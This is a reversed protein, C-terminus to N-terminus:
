TSALPTALVAGRDLPAAGLRSAFAALMGRGMADLGFREVFRTRGARGIEAQRAPDALLGRLARELADADAGPAVIGADGVVEVLAPTPSVVTAIGRAMSEAAVLGFSEYRSAAVVIAARMWQAELEADPLRGPTAIRAAVDPSSTRIRALQDAIGADDLPGVLTLTAEPHSPALRLFADLLRDSGKRPHLPGIALIRGPEGAGAPRVGPDPVGHPVVHITRDGLGCEHRMAGAHAESHTILNPMRRATYRDLRRVFRDHHRAPPTGTAFGDWHPTHLRLWGEPVSRAVAWGIGELNPVEVALFRRGAAVRRVEGLLRHGTVLNPAIRSAFRVWGLHARHIVLGDRDTRAPLSRDPEAFALVEVRAGASQLAAAANRAYATLGSRDASGDPPWRPTLLLVPGPPTPTM